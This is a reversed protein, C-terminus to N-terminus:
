SATSGRPEAGDSFSCIPSSEAASYFEGCCRRKSQGRTTAPRGQEGEAGVRGKGKGREGGEECARRITAKGLGGGRHERTHKLRVRGGETQKLGSKKRRNGLKQGSSIKQIKKEM